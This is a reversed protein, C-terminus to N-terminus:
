PLVSGINASDLQVNGDDLQLPAGMPVEPRLSTTRGIARTVCHTVPTGERM